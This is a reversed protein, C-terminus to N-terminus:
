EFSERLRTTVVMMMRVDGGGDGEGDSSSWPLGCRAGGFGLRALKQRLGHERWRWFRAQGGQLHRVEKSILVPALPDDALGQLVVPVLADGGPDVVGPVDM